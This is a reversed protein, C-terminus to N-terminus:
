IADRMSNLPSVMGLKFCQEGFGKGGNELKGVIYLILSTRRLVVDSAKKRKRQRM